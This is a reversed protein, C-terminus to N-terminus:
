HKITVAVTARLKNRLIDDGDCLLRILAARPSGDQKVYKNYRDKFILRLKEENLVKLSADM